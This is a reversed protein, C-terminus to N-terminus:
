SALGQPQKGDQKNRPSNDMAPFMRWPLPSLRSKALARGVPPQVASCVGGRRPFEQVHNTGLFEPGRPPSPGPDQQCWILPRESAAGQFALPLQRERAELHPTNQRCGPIM